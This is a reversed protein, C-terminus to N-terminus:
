VTDCDVVNEHNRIILLRFALHTRISLARLLIARVSKNTLRVCVNHASVAGVVGGGGKGGVAAASVGGVGVYIAWKWPQNFFLAGFFVGTAEVEL